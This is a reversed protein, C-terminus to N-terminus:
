KKKACSTFPSIAPDPPGFEFVVLEDNENLGDKEIRMDKILQGNAFKQLFPNNAAIQLEAEFHEQKLVGALLELLTRASIKIQMDSVIRRGVFRHSENWKKKERRWELEYRANSATNCIQPIASPIKSIPTLWDPIEAYRHYLKSWLYHNEPSLDRPFGKHMPALVLVFEISKHNRLFERIIDDAGYQDWNGQTHLTRCDGDCVIIGRHGPLKAAAFKKRKEELGNWLTNKRLITAQTYLVNNRTWGSSNPNFGFELNCEATKIRYSRSQNPARKVAALFEDFESTFIAHKFQSVHPLHLQPPPNERVSRRQFREGVSLYFGGKQGSRISPLIRQLFEDNLREVPNNKHRDKDSITKIDAVVQERCAQYVIDPKKSGTEPEHSINVFQSLGNLVAIEWVTALTDRERRPDNLTKAHEQSQEPTIWAANEDLMQQIAHRSFIM